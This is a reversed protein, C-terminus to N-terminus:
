DQWQGVAEEIAKRLDAKIELEVFDLGQLVWSALEGVTLRYFVHRGERREEVLRHAKLLALHQSVRPRSIELVSQLTGVDREGGRLEEVIRIRDANSLVGFM